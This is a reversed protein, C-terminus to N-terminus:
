LAVSAWPSSEAAVSGLMVDVTWRFLPATSFSAAMAPVGSFLPPGALGGVGPKSAIFSTTSSAADGTGAVGSPFVM